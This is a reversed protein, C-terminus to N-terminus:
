RPRDTEPAEQVPIMSAVPPSDPKKFHTARGTWPSAGPRYPFLPCTPATCNRAERRASGQGGDKYAPDLKGDKIPWGHCHLCYTRMLRLTVRGAKGSRHSHFLCHDAPCDAVQYASGGMCDLCLRRVARAPPLRKGSM